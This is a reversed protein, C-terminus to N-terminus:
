RVIASMLSTACSTVLRQRDSLQDLADRIEILHVPLDSSLAATSLRNAQNETERRRLVQACGNVITSRLYGGPRELRDWREGVIVFADHVVEEAQAVSGVMLTAMRLMATHEHKYLSSLGPEAKNTM